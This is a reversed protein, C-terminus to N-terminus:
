FNSIVSMLLLCLIPLPIDLKISSLLIVQKCPYKYSIFSGELKKVIVEKM